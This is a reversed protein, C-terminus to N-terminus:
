YAPVVFIKASLIPLLTRSCTVYMCFMLRRTAGFKREYHLKIGASRREIAVFLYQLV